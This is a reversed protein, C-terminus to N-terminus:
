HIQPSEDASIENASSQRGVVSSQVAARTGLRLPLDVTFSAGCGLGDSAAEISGGHLEVLHKAISLGLGLGFTKRSPSSDAQRFREFVHPLFEPPIGSGNDSVVIRVIGDLHNARVEVRGSHPTFKVANHLLNWLIQQVRGSDATMAPVGEEVVVDITIRKATAAPQLNQVASEIAARVDVSSLELRATGLSLLNMQLLDEILQAQAKANREIVKLAMEPDPAQGSNLINLWGLITNMPTRLEHSLTALFEDKIRSQREAEDRARRESALLRERELEAERQTSIDRSFGVLKVALGDGDKLVRGREAIWVISGNPRAVRYECEYGHGAFAAEVARHVREQDDRHMVNIIRRDPGFSGQPFGFLAEPDTSWTVTNSTLDWEWAAMRAIDMATRLREESDVANNHAITLAATRERVRLELEQNAQQLAEQANKRESIENQLTDNLSALERTKKYLDVFVGIKSRLIDGNVPKSLYDVAGADYGRLVDDDDVLHATLFLIPVDRTRKRQKVLRALEIGSMGPMRIDLIMAAFQHQLMALLAEDSSTARILACGSSQLMVELADLNRPEDDVILLKVEDNM